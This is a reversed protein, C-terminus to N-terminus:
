PTTKSGSPAATEPARGRCLAIDAVEAKTDTIEAKIDDHEPSSQARVDSAQLGFVLILLTGILISSNLAM